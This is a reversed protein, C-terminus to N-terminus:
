LMRASPEPETPMGPPIVSCFEGMRTVEICQRMWLWVNQPSHLWGSAGQVPPLTPHPLHRPQGFVSLKKRLELDNIFSHSLSQRYPLHALLIFRVWRPWRSASSCGSGYRRHRTHGDRVRHAKFRLLHPVLVFIADSALLKERLALNNTVTLHRVSQRNLVLYSLPAFCVRGLRRLARSCGTVHLWQYQASVHISIYHLSSFLLSSSYVQSARPPRPPPELQYIIHM